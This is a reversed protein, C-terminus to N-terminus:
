LNKSVDFLRLCIGLLHGKYTWILIMDAAVLDLVDREFNDSVVYALSCLYRQQLTSSFRAPCNKTTCHM